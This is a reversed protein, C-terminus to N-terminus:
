KYPKEGTYIRQHMRLNSKRTFSKECKSCKYPKEGTHVRKHVLLLSPFHFAKGCVECKKVELYDM